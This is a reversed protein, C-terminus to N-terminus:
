ICLCMVKECVCLCMFSHMCTDMRVCVFLCAKSGNVHVYNYFVCVIAIHLELQLHM